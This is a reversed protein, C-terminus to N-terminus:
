PRMLRNLDNVRTSSFRAMTESSEVHAKHSRSIGGASRSAWWKIGFDLPPTAVTM